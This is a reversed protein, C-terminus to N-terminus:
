TYVELKQLNQIWHLRLSYCRLWICLIDCFFGILIYPYIHEFSLDSSSFEDHGEPCAMSSNVTILSYCGDTQVSIIPDLDESCVFDISTKMSSGSTCVDGSGYVLELGQDTGFPSDSWLVTSQLGANLVEGTLSDVRCVASGSPCPPTDDSCVGFYWTYKSNSPDAVSMLLTATGLYEVFPELCYSTGDTATYHLCSQDDDAENHDALAIGVMLLAVVVISIIKM